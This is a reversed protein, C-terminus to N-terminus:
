AEKLTNLIVKGNDKTWDVDVRESAVSDVTRGIYDPQIPLQRSFRRDILVLLEVDTPRGFNMLAELGSRITRGTYLVDDVLVVHMDEVLFDITTESAVAPQERRRFDDRYFTVDLKGYKLKNTPEIENLTDVIRNALEVGRPQLGVIATKSFDGHNEVLQHALRRITLELQIHDLLVRQVM